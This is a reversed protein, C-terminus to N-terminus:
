SGCNVLTQLGEVLFASLPQNNVKPWIFFYMQRPPEKDTLELASIASKKQSSVDAAGTDENWM